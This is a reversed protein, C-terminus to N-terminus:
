DRPGHMVSPCRSQNEYVAENCRTEGKSFMTLLHAITNNSTAVRSISVPCVVLFSYTHPFAKFDERLLVM